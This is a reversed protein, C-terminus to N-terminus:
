LFLCVFLFRPQCKPNLEVFCDMTIQPTVIWNQDSPINNLTSYCEKHSHPFFLLNFPYIQGVDPVESLLSQSGKLLPTSAANVSNRRFTLCRQQWIATAGRWKVGGFKQQCELKVPWILNNPLGTIAWLSYIALGQWTWLLSGSLHGSLLLAVNIQSKVICGNNVM